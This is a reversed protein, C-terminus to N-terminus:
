NTCVWYQFIALVTNPGLDLPSAVALDVMQWEVGNEDVQFAKYLSVM